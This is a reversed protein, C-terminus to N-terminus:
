LNMGKKMEEKTYRDRTRKKLKTNELRPFIVRTKSFNARLPPLSSLTNHTHSPKGWDKSTM